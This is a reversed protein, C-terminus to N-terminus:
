KLRRKRTFVPSNQIFGTYSADPDPYTNRVFSVVCSPLAQRFSKGVLKKKKLFLHISRYASYRLNRNSIDSTETDACGMAWVSRLNVELVDKDLFKRIHPNETVCGGDESLVPSKISRCCVSEQVLKMKVCNGCYCFM